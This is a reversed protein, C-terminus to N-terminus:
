ELRRWTDGSARLFRFYYSRRAPIVRSILPVVAAIVVVSDGQIRAAPGAIELLARADQEMQGLDSSRALYRLVTLQRPGQRQHGISIVMYARGSALRM